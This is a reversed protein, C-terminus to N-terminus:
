GPKRKSVRGCAGEAPRVPIATFTGSLHITDVQNAARLRLDLTGTAGSDTGTVSVVGGSGTFGTVDTDNFWRVAAAALPRWDVNVEPALVPHPGPSVTDRDFLAFSVGTDGRIAEVQLMTDVACWSATAPATFRGAYTGTWAVSLMGPGNEVATPQSRCASPALALVLILAVRM